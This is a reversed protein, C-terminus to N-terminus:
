YAAGTFDTDGFWDPLAEEEGSIYGLAVSIMDCAEDVGKQLMDQMREYEESSFWEESRREPYRMTGVDFGSLARIIGILVRGWLGLDALMAKVKAFHKQANPIVRM